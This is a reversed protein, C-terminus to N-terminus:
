MDKVITFNKCDTRMQLVKQSNKRRNSYIFKSTHPFNCYDQLHDNQGSQVRKRLRGHFQDGSGAISKGATSIKIIIITADIVPKAKAARNFEIEVAAETDLEQVTM